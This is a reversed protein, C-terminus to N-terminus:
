TGIEAHNKDLPRKAEELQNKVLAYGEAQNTRISVDTFDYDRSSPEGKRGARVFRTIDMTAGDGMLEIYLPRQKIKAQAQQDVLDLINNVLQRYSDILERMRIDNRVREAYIIEDRRAIVEVLNTPLPRQGSFLDVIYVRKGDPGCREMVIDLPSNSVVGGDWYAQGNIETWPFGPPLSGSALVHDPTMDDVYSDFVELEATVVNVAGVLLRVPSTKLASFDVYKTILKRMPAVDYFSTWDTPLPLPNSFSPLWRPRFFNPVGFMLIGLSTAANTTKGDLMFASTVRLDKWFSELAETAHRPNSAVIAGNLAGISIGAVIDPFIREEELAKVVGCEFAGLAGGGQLVLVTQTPIQDLPAEPDHLRDKIDHLNVRYRILGEVNRTEETPRGVSFLARVVDDKLYFLAMSKTTLSGRAIRENAEEPAGLMSFSIEGIDCFFYSVEDYRMRRGLMNRAALRGQKIASDWHEIHRRQAFVPDHFSTVDGAAYVNQVNTRLQDDVIVLGDDLAIGSGALFDTAPEGGISVMLLDCPLRVGSQTEVEQIKSTGHIATITDRLLIHAGREEAHLKFHNSIKESEIHPLVLDHCEILTVHLGLELLTMAIEMGLFSAGLVVAHKAGSAIQERTIVCETKSRLYHVGPLDTGPLALRKPRLGTAILLQRYRIEDGAATRVLGQACDVATVARGLVFEINKEEYFNRPHLLIQKESSQGLLFQKSLSPRYYPLLDDASLIMISGTAGELRLTAAASAAAGGGGLLLYDIERVTM